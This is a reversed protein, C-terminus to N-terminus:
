KVLSRIKAKAAESEGIQKKQFEEAAKISSEIEAALEKYKQVNSDSRFSIAEQDFRYDGFSNLMFKLFEAEARERRIRLLYMQNMRPIQKSVSDEFGRIAGRKAEETTKLLAYKARASEIMLPLQNRQKEIIQQSADRKGLETEIKVLNGLVLTSLVEEQKLAALDAEMQGLSEFLERMLDNLPALTQDVAKHGSTNIVPVGGHSAQDLADLINTAMRSSLAQTSQQGKKTQITFAFVLSSLLCFLSFLPFAYSLRKRSSTWSTWLLIIALIFLQGGIRGLDEADATKISVEKLAYIAVALALLMLLSGLLTLTTGSPSKKPEGIVEPVAQLAPDALQDTKQTQLPPPTSEKQNNQVPDIVDAQRGEELWEGCYRCKVAEVRIQENCFPCAKFASAAM